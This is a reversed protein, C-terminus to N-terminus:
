KLSFMDGLLILKAGTSWYCLTRHDIMSIELIGAEPPHRLPRGQQSSLLSHAGLQGGKMPSLQQPRTQEECTSAKLHAHWCIKHVLCDGLFLITCLGLGITPTKKYLVHRKSTRTKEYGTAFSEFFTIPSLESNKCTKEHELRKTNSDKHTRTKM